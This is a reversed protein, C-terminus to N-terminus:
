PGVQRILDAIPDQRALDECILPCLTIADGINVFSVHRRQVNIAEWWKTKPDLIQSLGYQEVQSKGLQWRHHKYQDGTKFATGEDTGERYGYRVMNNCKFRGGNSSTDT